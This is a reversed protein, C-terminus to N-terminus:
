PYPIHSSERRLFAYAAKIHEKVTNVSIKEIDAIELYTKSGYVSLRLIAKRKEPMKEILTDIAKYYTEPDADERGAEQEMFTQRHKNVVNCRKIYNLCANRLSRLLYGKFNNIRGLKQRDGWVGAFMDQVIDEAAHQDLTYFTAYRVLEVYSDDFM